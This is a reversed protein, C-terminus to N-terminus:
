ELKKERAKNTKSFMTEANHTHRAVTVCGKKMCLTVWAEVTDESPM